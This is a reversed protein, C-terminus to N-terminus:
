RLALARMCRHRVQTLIHERGSGAQLHLQLANDRPRQIGTDHRDDFYLTAIGPVHQRVMGDQVNNNM